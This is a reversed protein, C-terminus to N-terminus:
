AALGGWDGHGTAGGGSTAREGRTTESRQPHFSGRRCADSAGDSAPLHFQGISGVQCQSPRSGLQRLPLPLPLSFILPLFSIECGFSVPRWRTISTHSAVYAFTTFIYTLSREAPISTPAMRLTIIQHTIYRNLSLMNVFLPHLKIMVAWKSWLSATTANKSVICFM